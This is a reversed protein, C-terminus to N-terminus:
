KRYRRGEWGDVGVPCGEAWKPVQAMLGLFDELQGDKPVVESAIEDHTHLVIPYQPAIRLMAEAQFCRGIAQDINEIVKGGHLKQVTWQKTYSDIGWYHPVVKKRGYHTIERLHPRRYFLVRGSPLRIFLWDKEAAFECRACEFIKGHNSIADVAAQLGAAWLKVTLPRNKRWPGAIEVCEEDSLTLGYNRAMSQLAGVWGQYGLALEAVKGVLRQDDDVEEVPIDYIGSATHKYVDEGSEYMNLIKQEGALWALIRGEISSFDGCILHKGPAATLCSRVLTSVFTTPEQEWLYAAIDAGYQLVTDAAEQTGKFSGRPLNHLQVGKGSWRGTSAGCYMYNGRLRGDSSVCRMMAMLKSVSSPGLQRRIELVRHVDEDLDRSLMDAVHDQDVSDIAMGRLNLWDKLKAHQKAGTVAGDTLTCLEQTMVDAQGTLRADLEEVLPTDCQVGRQNIEQDLLWLRREFPPLPLLAENLVWEARADQLCYLCLDHVEDPTENWYLTDEWNPNAEREAKRPHRPKCLRMMLAHGIKDKRERTGLEKGLRDLDRPLAMRAARAATCSWRGPPLPPAGYRAVMLTWIAQEFSANHAELVEAAGALNFFEETTLTPFDITRYRLLNQVWPSLWIRPEQDSVKVACCFVQTTPHGVYPWVGIDMLKGASRSEFDVTLIM